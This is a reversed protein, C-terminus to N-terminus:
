HRSSVVRKKEVSADCNISHGVDTVHGCLMEFFFEIRTWSDAQCARLLSRSNADQARRQPVLWNRLNAIALCIANLTTSLKKALLLVRNNSCPLHARNRFVFFSRNEFLLSDLALDTFSACADSASSAHPPKSLSLAVTKALLSAFAAKVLSVTLGRRRAYNKYAGAPRDGKLWRDIFSRPDHDRFGM